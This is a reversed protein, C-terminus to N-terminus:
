VMIYISDLATAGTGTLSVLHLNMHVVGCCRCRFEGETFYPSPRRESQAPHPHLLGLALM